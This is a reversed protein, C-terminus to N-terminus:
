EGIRDWEVSHPNRARRTRVVADGPINDQFPENAYFRPGGKKAWDKRVLRKLVSYLYESSGIHVGTATIQRYIETPTAGKEHKRLFQYVTDGINRAHLSQTPSGGSSQRPPRSFRSPINQILAEGFARGMEVQKRLHEVYAEARHLEAELEAQNVAHRQRISLVDNVLVMM